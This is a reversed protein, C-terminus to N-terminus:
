LAGGWEIRWGVYLALTAASKAVQESEYGKKPSSAFHEQKGEALHRYAQWCWVGPKREYVYVKCPHMM